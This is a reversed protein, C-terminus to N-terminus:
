YPADEAKSDTDLPDAPAFPHEKPEDVRIVEFNKVRNFENGKNSTQIVVKIRCLIGPPLPMELQQKPKDIALKLLDRKASKRNPETLWIDYWCKRNTHDDHNVVTFELQYSPTGTRAQAIKGDTAYAEYTGPPIPGLEDSAQVNDWDDFFDGGGNLIDTLTGM